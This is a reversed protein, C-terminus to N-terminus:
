QMYAIALATLCAHSTQKLPTGKFAEVATANTLVSYELVTPSCMSLQDATSRDAM